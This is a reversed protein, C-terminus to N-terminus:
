RRRAFYRAILVWLLGVLYGGIVDSLFHVGLYLRSFGILLIISLSIIALIYKTLTNFNLPWLSYILFGFLAFILAAHASPFSSLKEAYLAMDAAPRARDVFAKILLTTIGSGLVSLLLTWVLYGKMKKRLVFALCLTILLIVVWHGLFTIFYFFHDLSFTRM